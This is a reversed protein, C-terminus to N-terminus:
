YIDILFAVVGTILKFSYREFSTLLLQQDLVVNVTAAINTDGARRCFLELSEQFEVKAM